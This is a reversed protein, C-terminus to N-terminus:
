FPRSAALEGCPGPLPTWSSPCHSPRANTQPDCSSKLFLAPTWLLQVHTLNYRLRALEVESRIERRSRPLFLLFGHTKETTKGWALAPWMGCVRHICPPFFGIKSKQNELLGSALSNLSKASCNKITRSKRKANTKLFASGAGNCVCLGCGKEISLMTLGLGTGKLLISRLAFFNGLNM